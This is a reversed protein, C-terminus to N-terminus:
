FSIYKRIDKTLYIESFPDNEMLTKIAATKRVIVPIPFGFTTKLLETLQTEIEAITSLPTKVFVNGSNLVTKVEQFSAAELCSKLEDMPVKKHGGVNIGRLFIIYGQTKM